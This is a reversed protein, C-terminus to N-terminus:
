SHKNPKALETCFDQMFAQHEQVTLKVSVNHTGSEVAQKLATKIKQNASVLTASKNMKM